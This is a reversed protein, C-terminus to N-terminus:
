PRLAKSIFLFNVVFWVLMVFLVLNESLFNTNEMHNATLNRQSRFMLLVVFAEGFVTKRMINVVKVMHGHEIIVGASIGKVFGGSEKLIIFVRQSFSFIFHCM